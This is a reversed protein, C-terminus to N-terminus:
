SQFPLQLCSFQSMRCAAHTTDKERKQKRLREHSFCSSLDNTFGHESIPFPCPQALFSKGLFSVNVGIINASDLSAFTAGGEFDKELDGLCELNVGM